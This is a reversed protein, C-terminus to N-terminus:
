AKEKNTIFENHDGQIAAVKQDWQKEWRSPPYATHWNQFMQRETQSLPIDYKKAMYLHIRAIMGRIRKPPVVLRTKDDIALECGTYLQKPYEINSTFRYNKRAQNLDRIEPVLNHLDAEMLRFKKDRLRCCQRGKLGNQTCEAGQWCPLAKGYWSVPVVHEWSIYRSKRKNKPKFACSSFDIVGHKNYSCGCYFTERQTQWIQRATNKAETYNKPAALMPASWGMLWLLCGAVVTRMYVTM